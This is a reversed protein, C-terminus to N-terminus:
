ISLSCKLLNINMLYKHIHLKISSYNPASKCNHILILPFVHYNSNVSLEQSEQTTGPIRFLTLVVILKYTVSKKTIIAATKVIGYECCKSQSNITELASPTCKEVKEIHAEQIKATVLM